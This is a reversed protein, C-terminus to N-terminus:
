INFGPEADLIVKEDLLFQYLDDLYIAKFETSSTNGYYDVFDNTQGRVISKELRKYTLYSINPYVTELVKDLSDLSEQQSAPYDKSPESDWCSAGSSGPGSWSVYLSFDSQDRGFIPMRVGHYGPLGIKRFQYSYNDSLIQEVKNVFEEFNLSEM